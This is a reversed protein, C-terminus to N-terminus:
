GAALRVNRERHSLSVGLSKVLNEQIRNLNRPAHKEFVYDLVLEAASLLAIKVKSPLTRNAVRALDIVVLAPLSEVNRALAQLEARTVTDISPCPPAVSQTGVAM